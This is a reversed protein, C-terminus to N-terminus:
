PLHKFEPQDHLSDFDPNAAIALRDNWGTALAHELQEIALTSFESTRDDQNPVSATASTTTAASGACIAYGTAATYAGLPAPLETRLREAAEVAPGILGCRAQARMLNAQFTRDEPAALVLQQYLVLCQQFYTQSAEKDAQREALAGLRYLGAALDASVSVYRPDRDRLSRAIDVAREYCTKADAITEPRQLYFDGLVLCANTLASQLRVSDQTIRKLSQELLEVAKRYSALARDPEDMRWLCDGRRLERTAMEFFEKISSPAVDAPLSAAWVDAEELARRAADLDGLQLDINTLLLSSVATDWQANIIKWKDVQAGKLAEVWQVRYQQGRQYHKRAIDLRGLRAYVDGLKNSCAAMFRNPDIGNPDLAYFEDVLSAMRTYRELASSIQGTEVLIDGMRQHAGAETRLVLKRNELPSIKTLNGSESRELEQLKVLSDKLLQQRLDHLGPRDRLKDQVEGVVFNLTARSESKNHVAQDRALNAADRERAIRVLAVNLGVMWALVLLSVVGLLAAVAPNRRCWRVARERRGVPRALIPQGNLYRQLEESLEQASAYRKVPEKELCKLCITNLDLGIAPNATIPKRPAEHTVRSLTQMITKSRFPPEGVLLEFLISGLSYVDSAVSVDKTNGAAQEPSMYDPTGIVLGSHTEGSDQDLRKALGFDTIHPEGDRDVLINAPKLDRHLIGRSHAFHVALAVKRVLDVALRPQEALKRRAAGDLGSGEVLRMTYYPMGQIEGVHYIPVIHRHELSGASEAEIHFRRVAEASAYEGGIMIKLAVVRNVSKERAKYVVGMGGRGLEGLLEYDELGRLVSSLGAAKAAPRLPPTAGPALRRTAKSDAPDPPVEIPCTAAPDEALQSWGQTADPAGGASPPAAGSGINESVERLPADDAAEVAVNAAADDTSLHLFGSEAKRLERLLRERDAEPVRNLYAGILPRSGGTVCREWAHRFEDVVSSVAGRLGEIPETRERESM